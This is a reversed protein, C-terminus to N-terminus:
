QGRSTASAAGDAREDAVEGPERGDVRDLVAQREPAEDVLLELRHGVDVEVEGAVDALLEDDADCFPVPGLVRREDRAERRVARAARDTVDALREPQRM